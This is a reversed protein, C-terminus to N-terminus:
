AATKGEALQKGMPPLKFQARASNYRECFVLLEAELKATFEDREIRLCFPPLHRAYSFFDWQARGTVIMYGHLQCKYADPLTANRYYGIAVAPSPCKIEVGGTEGVLADPSGGFMGSSHIVFGVETVDEKAYELQYACRAEAELKMGAEMEPSIYSGRIVGEEPPCLSEALLTDILTDQASSRQGKAATLVQHFRSATPMGRRAAYWGESRQHTDVTTM